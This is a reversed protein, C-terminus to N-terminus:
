AQQTRPWAAALILRDIRAYSVPKDSGPPQSPEFLRTCVPFNVPSVTGPQKDKRAVAVHRDLHHVSVRLCPTASRRHSIHLASVFGREACILDVFASVGEGKVNLARQHSGEYPLLQCSHVLKGASLEDHLRRVWVFVPFSRPLM